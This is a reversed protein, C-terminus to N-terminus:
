SFRVGAVACLSSVLTRSKSRLICLGVRLFLQCDSHYAFMRRMVHLRLNMVVSVVALWQVM